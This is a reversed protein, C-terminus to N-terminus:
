KGVHDVGLFINPVICVNGFIDDKFLKKMSDIEYHLNLM